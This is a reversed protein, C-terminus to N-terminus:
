ALAAIRLRWSILTQEDSFVIAKVGLDGLRRSEAALDEASEDDTKVRAIAMAAPASDVVTNIDMNTDYGNSTSVELVFIGHSCFERKTFRYENKAM